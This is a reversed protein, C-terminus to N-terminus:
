YERPKGHWQGIADCRGCPDHDYGPQCTCPLSAVYAATAGFTACLDSLEAVTPHYSWPAHGSDVALMALRASMSVTVASGNVTVLGRFRLLASAAPPISNIYGAKIRGTEPQFEAGPRGHRAVRDRIAILRLDERVTATLNGANRFPVYVVSHRGKGPVERVINTGGQSTVEVKYGRRAATALSRAVDADSCAGETLTGDTSTVTMYFAVPTATTMPDEQTTTV